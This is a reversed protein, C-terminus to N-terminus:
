RALRDAQDLAAASREPQDFHNLYAGRNKLMARYTPIVKIKVVDDDEFRNTGDALGRLQLHLEGPDHFDSDRFLQFVLGKPVAQFNQNLWQTLDHEPSDSLVYLENGVYVPAVEFEQMVFSRLMRNFDDSLEQSLFPRKQFEEPDQEWHKLNALYPDVTARSREILDPYARRLYDFYWSRRLLQVDIVKIDPRRKEIERTYLMPSVIQWDLTLLLGHPEITGQMNEVYDHAVLFHSRDNFSWNTALALLPVVAVALSIIFRTAAPLRRVWSIQLFSHFGIGAAMIIAVFVPLYYADKDEAIGYNLTYALNALVVVLLWLFTTRDRRWAVVFGALASLLAIPIWPAGFERSLIRVFAVLQQGMMSPSFSFFLQYQKGSVHAWIAGLSRPDGWNLVPDHIAALPLYSYVALLAALSVLAAYLLRKSAFFAFGQTRYVLVALAPLILGVTVHHDGLALGFVIAAAYLLFDYDPIVAPAGRGSAIANSSREDAVIRRRWRAMLYFIILILFTNLTYVEAITAYSWLTRSFALLLGAGVASLITLWSSSGNPESSESSKRRGKRPAKKSRRRLEAVHSATATLELVALTLMACALAAFLASAFNVRFAINGIPLLSALHALMVYLPFGPPHAVGLFRAAVILEGSDVLTVTPALTWVYVFLALFFVFAASAFTQGRSAPM